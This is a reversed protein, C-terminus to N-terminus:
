ALLLAAEMAKAKLDEGVGFWANFIRNDASTAQAKHDVYETVANVLGWATGDAGLLTGGMANHSFLDLIVREGKHPKARLTEVGDAKVVPRMLNAIFAEARQQSVKIKALTRATTLFREFRERSAVLKQKMAEADFESRHTVRFLPKAGRAMSLTNNCVVRVSTERGETASSGDCSGSLLLYEALMDKGVVPMDESLRALAWFRKGGFLTGATHLRCGTNETLERFFELHERPQVIQYGDSVVGLKEKTDSRFLVHTDDCTKLTGAADIAYRLKSRKVSWGMGAQAIWTDIGANEELKQGLGHWPTEGVYAMEVKGTIRNTTLEHSM